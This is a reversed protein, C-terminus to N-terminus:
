PEEMRLWERVAIEVTKNIHFRCGVGLSDGTENFDTVNKRSTSSRGTGDDVHINERGNEIEICCRRVHQVSMVDDSYVQILQRHQPVCTISM